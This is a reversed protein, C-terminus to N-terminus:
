VVELPIGVVRVREAIRVVRGCAPCAEPRSGAGADDELVVPSWTRCCACGRGAITQELAALRKIANVM